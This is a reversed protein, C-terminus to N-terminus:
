APVFETSVWGHLPNKNGIAILESRSQRVTMSDIAWALEELDEQSEAKAARPSRVIVRCVPPRGAHTDIEYSVQEDTNSSGM